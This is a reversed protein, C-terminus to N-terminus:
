LVAFFQFEKIVLSISGGVADKGLVSSLKLGCNQM